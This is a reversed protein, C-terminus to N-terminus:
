FLLLCKNVTGLVTSLVIYADNSKVQVRRGWTLVIVTEVTETLSCLDCESLECLLSSAPGLLM